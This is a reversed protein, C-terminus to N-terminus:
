VRLTQIIHPIDAATLSHKHSGTQCRLSLSRLTHPQSHCSGINHLGTGLRGVTSYQIHPIVASVSAIQVSGICLTRRIAGILVTNENIMCGVRKFQGISLIQAETIRTHCMNYCGPWSNYWQRDTSCLPKTWGAHRIRAASLKTSTLQETRGRNTLECEAVEAFHLVSSLSIFSACVATSFILLSPLSWFATYSLLQQPSRIGREPHNWVWSLM